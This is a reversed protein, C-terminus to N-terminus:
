TLNWLDETEVYIREENALDADTSHGETHLRRAETLDEATAKERVHNVFRHRGTPVATNAEELRAM